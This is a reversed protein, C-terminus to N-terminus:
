IEFKFIFDAEGWVRIERNILRKQPKGPKQRLGPTFVPTPVAFEAM